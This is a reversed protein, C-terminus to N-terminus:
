MVTCPSLTTVPRTCHSLSHNRQLIAQLNGTTTPRVTHTQLPSSLPDHSDSPGDPGPSPRHSSEAVKTCDSERVTRIGKTVKAHTRSRLHRVCTRTRPACESKKISKSTIKGVLYNKRVHLLPRLTHQCLVDWYFRSFLLAFPGSFHRSMAPLCALAFPLKATSRPPREDAIVWPFVPCLRSRLVPLPAISCAARRAVLQFQFDKRVRYVSRSRTTSPFHPRHPDDPSISDFDFNFASDPRLCARRLSFAIVLFKM